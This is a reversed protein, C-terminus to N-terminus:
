EEENTPLELNTPIPFLYTNINLNFDERVVIPFEIEEFGDSTIKVNYEGTQINEINLPLKSYYVDDLFIDGDSVNSSLSILGNDAGTTPSESYYLVYGSKFGAPGIELDIIAETDRGLDIYIVEPEYFANETTTNREIIVEYRGKALDNLEIPTQGHDTGNITVTAIGKRSNVSLSANQYLDNFYPIRQLLSDPTKAFFLYSLTFVGIFTLIIVATYKKM